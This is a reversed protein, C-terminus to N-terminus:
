ITSKKQRMSTFLQLLFRIYLSVALASALIISLASPLWFILFYIFLPLIVSYWRDIFSTLFQQEKYSQRLEFFLLIAPILSLTPSSYGLNISGVSNAFNRPVDVFDYLLEPHLEQWYQSFIPYVFALILAIGALFISESQFRIDKKRLLKMIQDQQKDPDPETSQIAEIQGQLLQTRVQDFYGTLMLPIFLIGALLGLAIMTLVPQQQGISNYLGIILNYGPQVILLEFIQEM